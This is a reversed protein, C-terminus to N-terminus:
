KGLNRLIDDIEKLAPLGKTEITINIRNLVDETIERKMQEMKRELMMDEHMQRKVEIYSQQLTKGATNIAREIWDKQQPM